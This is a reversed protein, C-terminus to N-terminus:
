PMTVSAPQADDGRSRGPKALRMEDAPAYNRLVSIMTSIWRDARLCPMASPVGMVGDIMRESDLIGSFVGIPPEDDARIAGPVQELHHDEDRHLAGLKRDM